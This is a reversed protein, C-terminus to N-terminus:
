RILSSGSETRRSVIAKGQQSNAVWLLCNSRAFVVAVTVQEKGSGWPSIVRLCNRRPTLGPSTEVSSPFWQDSMQEKCSRSSQVCCSQSVSGHYHWPSRCLLSFFFFFLRLPFIFVMKLRPTTPPNLTGPYLRSTDALFILNASSGAPHSLLLFRRQPNPQPRRDPRGRHEGQQWAGAATLGAPWGDTM